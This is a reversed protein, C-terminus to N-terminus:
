EGEQLPQQILWSLSTDATAGETVGTRILCAYVGGEKPPKGKDLPDAVAYSQKGYNSM